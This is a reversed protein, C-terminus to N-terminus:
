KTNYIQIYCRPGTLCSMEDWQIVIFSLKVQSWKSHIRSSSRRLVKGSRERNAPVTRYGVGRTLLVATSAGRREPETERLWGCTEQLPKISDCSRTRGCSGRTAPAPTHSNNLPSCWRSSPASSTTWGCRAVASSWSLVSGSSRLSAEPFCTRVCSRWFRWSGWPRWSRIPYTSRGTRRMWTGEQGCCRHFLGTYTVLSEGGKKIYRKRCYLTNVPENAWIIM